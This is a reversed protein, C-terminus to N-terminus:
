FVTVQRFALGLALNPEPLQLLKTTREIQKDGAQDSRSLSNTISEEKATNVWDSRMGITRPTKNKPVAITKDRRAEATEQRQWRSQFFFRLRPELAGKRNGSEFFNSDETYVKPAM